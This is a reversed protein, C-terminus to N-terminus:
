GFMRFLLAFIGWVLAFLGPLLIDALKHQRRPDAMTGEWIGAM